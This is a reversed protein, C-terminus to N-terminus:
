RRLDVYTNRKIETGKDDIILIVYYTGAPLDDGNNNQGSWNKATEDVSNEYNDKKFVENGWRNFVMFTSTKFREMGVIWYTDNRGDKNPSFGNPLDLDLCPGDNRIRLVVSDSTVCPGNTIVWRIVNRGTDVPYYYYDTLSSDPFTVLGGGLSVIWQGTGPAPNSGILRFRSRMDDEFYKLCVLTDGSGVESQIKDYATVVLTDECNNPDTRWVIYNDGTTLGTVIANPSTPSPSFTGSGQIVVWSGPGGCQLSLNASYECVDQDQGACAKTDPPDTLTVTDAATCNNADTIIVIYTGSPLNIAPNTTQGNSWSYTYPPTGGNPTATATGDSTGFCLPPVSATVDVTLLTPEPM